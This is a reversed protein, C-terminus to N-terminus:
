LGVLPFNTKPGEGMSCDYFFLMCCSVFVICCFNGYQLSHDLYGEKDTMEECFMWVDCINTFQFTFPELIDEKEMDDLECDEWLKSYRAASKALKEERMQVADPLEVESFLQRNEAVM